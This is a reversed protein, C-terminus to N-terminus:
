KELIDWIRQKVSTMENMIENNWFRVVRYGEAKLWSERKLDQEIQNMHHGGDVEVILKKELCIFDVIFRRGLLHQRRFKHGNIQKRRLHVWLKIEAETMRSRLGRVLVKNM